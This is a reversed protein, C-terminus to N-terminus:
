RYKRHGVIMGALFTLCMLVVLHSIEPEFTILKIDELLEYCLGIVLGVGLTLVAADLFIRQQMEDLGHLYRKTAVIMGLGVGLNILVGLSTLLTDFNWILKPGFAALAMSVVWAITWYRLRVINRAASTAWDGSGTEFKSM